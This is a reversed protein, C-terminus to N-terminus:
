FYDPGVQDDFERWGVQQCNYLLTHQRCARVVYLQWWRSQVWARVAFTAPQKAEGGVQTFMPKRVNAWLLVYINYHQRRPYESAVIMSFCGLEPM